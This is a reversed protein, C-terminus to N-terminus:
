ILNFFQVLPTAFLIRIIKYLLYKIKNLINDPNIKQIPDNLIM